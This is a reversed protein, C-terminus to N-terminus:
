TGGGVRGGDDGGDWSDGSGGGGGGGGAGGSGGSGGSGSPRNLIGLYAVHRGQDGGRHSFLLPDRRTDRRSIGIAATPVGVQRAREALATRLDVPAPGPPVPLGLAEHVEPGVEYSAAGIAPGLHLLLEAPRVGFHDELGQLGEELIGAVIGRWGAHLLAVVRAGPGVVFVPVCDALSVTLLVGPERTAHGDCAPALFLGPQLGGHVRVTSGHLQRAHVVTASGSADRLRDWRDLVEGGPAPGRLRLDFPREGGDPDSRTTVGHVLWPFADMWDRRVLVTPGSRLTRTEESVIGPLHPASAPLSSTMPLMNPPLATTRSQSPYPIPRARVVMFGRPGSRSGPRFVGMGASCPTRGTGRAPLGM